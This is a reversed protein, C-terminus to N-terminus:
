DLEAAARAVTEPDAVECGADVDRSRSSTWNQCFLCGLNCGATGFSLVPTGPYFQSLPKKEIPDICFGTSRGYTTSVMRGDRNQRVFCFGRKGPLLKYFPSCGMFYPLNM